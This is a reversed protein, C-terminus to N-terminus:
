WLLVVSALALSVSMSLATWALALVRAYSQVRVGLVRVVRTLDLDWDSGMTSRGVTVQALMSLVVVWTLVM